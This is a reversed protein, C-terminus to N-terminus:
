QVGIVIEIADATMVVTPPLVRGTPPRGSACAQERLLIAITTSEPTTRAGALDLWWRALSVADPAAITLKCRGYSNAQLRGGTEEVTVVWWPTEADGRAVFTVGQSENIVRHWGSRPFGEQAVVTRLVDAAADPGLEGLGPGQLAEPAFIQDPDGCTLAPRTVSNPDIPPVVEPGAAPLSANSSPASAVARATSSPTASECGAVLGLVLAIVALRRPDM